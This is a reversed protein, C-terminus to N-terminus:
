LIYYYAGSRHKNTTNLYANLDSVNIVRPYMFSHLDNNDIARVHMTSKIEPINVTICADLFDSVMVSMTSTLEPMNITLSSTLTTEDNQRILITADIDSVDVVLLTGTLEPLSVNFLSNLDADEVVRVSLMSHLDDEGLARASLYGSIEGQNITLTSVITDENNQQITIHGALDDRHMVYISSHLEPVSVTLTSTIDSNNTARVIMHSNLDDRYKVYYTSHLEPVSAHLISTLDENGNRRVMIKGVFDNTETKAVVMTSKIDPQSVAMFARHDHVVPTDYRHVYMTATIDNNGRDTKVLLTSNLDKVSAGYAFLTSTLDSKDISWVRTDYYTFELYPKKSSERTFISDSLFNLDDKSKVVLGFDNISGNNVVDQVYDSVEFEIYNEIDNVTYTDSIMINSFPRNADTIGTEDWQRDATWLQLTNRNLLRSGLYMRIKANIVVLTQPYPTFDFQIFSRLVEDANSGVMMTSTTGYNIFRYDVYTRTTSDKIPILKDTVRPPEVIDFIGFMRGNPRIDIGALLYDSSMPIMFGHIDENGRYKVDISSVVDEDRRVRVNMKSTLDNNNVARVHMTSDLDNNGVAIINFKGKMSNRSNVFLTGRIENYIPVVTLTAVLENNDLNAM